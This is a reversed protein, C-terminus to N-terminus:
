KGADIHSTIRTELKNIADKVGSMCDRIETRYYDTDSINRKRLHWIWTALITYSTATEAINAFDEIGM